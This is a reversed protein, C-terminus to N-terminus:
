PTSIKYLKQEKPSMWHMDSSSASALTFWYFDDPIGMEQYYKLYNQHEPHDKPLSNADNIGLAAWSHVGVKAGREVTRNVGALFFDTGGSAVEGHGSIITNLGKARVLRAAELNAEDDVSGDVTEMIITTIEPHKNLLTQLKGTIDSTIVGNMTVSTGSVEFRIPEYDDFDVACGPLIFAIILLFLREFM